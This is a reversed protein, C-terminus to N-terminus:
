FKRRNKPFDIVGLLCESILQGKFVGEQDGNADETAEAAAAEPKKEDVAMVPLEVAAFLCLFFEDFYLPIVSLQVQLSSTFSVSAVTSTYQSRHCFGGILARDCTHFLLRTHAVDVCLKKKILFLFLPQDCNAFVM